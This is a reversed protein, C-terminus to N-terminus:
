ASIIKMLSAVLARKNQKNKNNKLFTTKMKTVTMTSDIDLEDDADLDNGGSVYFFKDYSVTDHAIFKHERLQSKYEDSIEYAPKNKSYFENSSWIKIKKLIKKNPAIYFGVVKSDTYVNYWNIVGSTTEQSYTPFQILTDNVKESVIIKRINFSASNPEGCLKRGIYDADGDQIIVTNLIDINHSEKFQKAIPALAILSENLPTSSLAEQSPMTIKIKVVQKKGGSIGPIENTPELEIEEYYYRNYTKSLAIINKCAQDFTTKNMNSNLYERLYVRELLIEGPNRSFSAGSIDLSQTSPFDIQRASNNSGFGYVVFPIGARKCFQALVVLQEYSGQMNETMSASRDLLIVFGHNKGNPMKMIRRFINDDTKYKYVKALDLDGTNSIKAKAYIKAAKRMEFEKILLDIYRSNRSKFTNYSESVFKPFTSFHTTLLEHVRSAPTVINKLVPKPLKAYTNVYSDISSLKSINTDFNEATECTPDTEEERQNYESSSSSNDVEVEDSDSVEGFSQETGDSDDNETGSESETELSDEGDDSDAFDDDQDEKKASQQENKSYEFIIKAVEVAEDFTDVADVLDVMKQEESSFKIGALVGLKFHLNVRDVFFLDNMDRGAIGFIDRSLFEAYGKVFSSRLGPYRRKIRKEIRADEVINIFSKLKPNEEVTTKWDEYPTDIAHGVEHGILLDYGHESVNKWNPLTLVRNKLEFSATSVNRVEVNINETALLKALLSKHNLISM